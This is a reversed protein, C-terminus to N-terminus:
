DVSSDEKLEKIKDAFRIIQHDNVVLEGCDGEHLVHYEFVSCACTIIEGGDSTFEVEYQETPFPLDGPVAFYDYDVKKTLTAHPYTVTEYKM